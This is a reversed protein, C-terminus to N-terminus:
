VNLGARKAGAQVDDSKVTVEGDKGPAASIEGLVKGDADVVEVEVEKTITGYLVELGEHIHEEPLTIKNNRVILRNPRVLVPLTMFGHTEQYWKGPKYPKGDFLGMWEADGGQEEDEPVYFEVRGDETFVPAVLLDPGLM